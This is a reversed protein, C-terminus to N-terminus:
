EEIEKKYIEIPNEDSRIAGITESVIQCVSRECIFSLKFVTQRALLKCKLKYKSEHTPKGAFRHIM